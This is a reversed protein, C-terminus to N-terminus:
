IKVDRLFAASEEPITPNIYIGSGLEFGATRSLRPIITVYWNLYDNSIEKVPATRIILNYAPDRLGLYLRRLVDRLIHALDALEDPQSYLFSVTHKRPVIWISFPSPSAYLVFAVFHTSVAVLREQSKLENEVMVCYACNGTDDFYRRAQDIRDRISNPVVPLGVIQSHPHKLSAGAREGHNKFYIIQEIRSDKRISWGRSYFTRLLIEIEEPRMLAPTTNHRPSEIVIEHHGVGSIRRHVGDFTRKLEVDKSLAPYKNYVVRTQWLGEPPYQEISLDIEENGPCFPCNPDYLVQTETIVRNAAEIYAHPRRARENAIIVWEKTVMNQRLEAM